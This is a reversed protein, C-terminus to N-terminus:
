DVRWAQGADLLVVDAPSGVSLTGYPLGFIRCPDITLRGIVTGLDLDGAEVLKMLSGFATEFGTIGFSAEDYTCDKDISRHPAHDTAIVDILGERLAAVVAQRDTERRLPPNVKTRTDYRYQNA